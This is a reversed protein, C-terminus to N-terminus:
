AEVKATTMYSARAFCFRRKLTGFGQEVIYRSKSILKNARKQWPTLPRGRAAKYMLGGRVGRSRLLDRNAASAYGKDAYLKEPRVDGLAAELSRMESVHAPKVYVRHIAGHTSDTTVFGKYGFYSKNGKKLWTADPDVSLKEEGTVEFTPTEGEARDVAMTELHKRPRAASEILTADLVAGKSPAVQLGAQQLQRNVERLLKAWKGRHILLNRFRCFTTEDPVNDEFGTFLMFDMRLRLAEELLRDSLSHWAQLFL